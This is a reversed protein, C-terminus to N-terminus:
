IFSGRRLAEEPDFWTANVFAQIEEVFRWVVDTDIPYEKHQREIEAPLNRKDFPLRKAHRLLFVNDIDTLRCDEPEMDLYEALMFYKSIPCGMKLRTATGAAEQFM